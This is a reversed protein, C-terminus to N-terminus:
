KTKALDDLWSKRISLMGDVIDTREASYNKREPEQDTLRFLELKESGERGILKWEDMRVAWSQHWQFNLTKQYGSMQYPNKILRLLSHGDLPPDSDKRHIGCVDMVTPLWDM